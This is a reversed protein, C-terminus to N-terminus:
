NRTNLYGDALVDGGIHLEGPVGVPVPQLYKDLVHYRANRVPKGYPISPWNPDVRGIPYWNSWIAAETAGGLSVVRSNPFTARVQDPLHHFPPQRVRAQGLEEARM